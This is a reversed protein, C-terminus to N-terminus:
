LSEMLWDFWIRSYEPGFHIGDNSADDPLQGTEDTMVSAPDIYHVGEQSAIEAIADNKERIMEMTVSYGKSKARADNVPTIAHAYIQAQPAREKVGRIASRYLEGWWENDDAADNVGMLIIVADYDRDSVEDIVARSSGSVSADFVTGAHLNVKGYFDIPEQALYSALSAVISDGLVAIRQMQGVRGTASVGDAGFDFVQGGVKQTGLSMVGDKGFHYWRDGVQQWGTHREGNVYYYTKNGIKQFGTYGAGHDFWLSVGKKDDRVEGTTGRGDEDFHYSEGNLTVSGTQSLGTDPDFYYRDEGVKVLGGAMVGDPSFYYIGSGDAARAFGSPLRSNGYCFYKDPEACYRLALRVDRVGLVGDRDLDLQVFGKKLPEQRVSFRLLAAADAADFRGDGDVDNAFRIPYLQRRKGNVTVALPANGDYQYRIGIGSVSLVLGCCGVFVVAGLMVCLM